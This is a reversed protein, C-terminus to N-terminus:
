RLFAFLHHDPFCAPIGQNSLPFFHMSGSRFEYWEDNYQFEYGLNKSAPQEKPAEIPWGYSTIRCVDKDPLPLESRINTPFVEFEVRKCPLEMKELLKQFTAAYNLQRPKGVMKVRPIKTAKNAEIAWGQMHNAVLNAAEKRDVRYCSECSDCPVVIIHQEKAIRTAEAATLQSFHIWDTTAKSIVASM